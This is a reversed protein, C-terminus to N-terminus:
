KLEKKTEWPLELDNRGFHGYASTHQFQWTKLGFETQLCAPRLDFNRRVIGVLDADSKGSCRLATGFSDVNISAPEAQGSVYSLQVHARKCFGASVLNRAVWRAAYTGVRNVKTADKGSISGSSVGSCWGGYCDSSVRKGTTGVDSSPHHRPDIVRFLFRADLLEEPVSPRVVHELLDKEAQEDKVNDDRPVTLHISQVRVATFSGDAKESYEVVVQAKGGLKVWPLTGDKRISDLKCCLRSALLQSLPMLERTEDTAYGAVIGQDGGGHEQLAQNGVMAQSFNISGEEVAIIINMTRWDLGKDEHDYGVAKAAERIVQEYNVEGKSVIEGLIMVMSSKTCAECSVQAGADQAICADVVADVVRDCLKDPCGETAAESAHLFHGNPLTEVQM